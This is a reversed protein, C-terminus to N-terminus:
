KVVVVKATRAGKSTTVRIFYIGPSVKKGGYDNCDWELVVRGPEKAVRNFLERVLRGRVDYVRTECQGAVDVNFDIRVLRDRAPNNLVLLHEKAILTPNSVSAPTGPGCRLPLSPEGFMGYEWWIERELSLSRIWRNKAAVFAQGWTVYRDTRFVSDLVADLLMKSQAQMTVATPGIWLVTGSSDAFNMVDMVSAYEPNSDAWQAVQCCFGLVVPYRGKNTLMQATLGAYETSFFDVFDYASSYTGIGIVLGYGQNFIPLIYDQLNQPDLYPDIDTAYVVTKETLYWPLRKQAMQEAWARVYTGDEDNIMGDETLVLVKRHFPDEPEIAMLHRVKDSWRQFETPSSPCVRAVAVELQGDDDLDGYPDDYAIWEEWNRLAPKKPVFRYSPVGSGVLLVYKLCGSNAWFRIAARIATSDTSGHSQEIESLTFVEAFLPDHAPNHLLRYAHTECVSEYQDECIIMYEVERYCDSDAWVLGSLSLFLGVMAIAAWYRM